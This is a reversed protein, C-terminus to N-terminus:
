AYEDGGYLAGYLAGVVEAEIMCSGKGLM